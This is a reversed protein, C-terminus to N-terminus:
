LTSTVTIRSALGEGYDDSIEHVDVYFQQAPLIGYQAQTTNSIHYNTSGNVLATFLLQNNGTRVKVVFNLQDLSVVGSGKQTTNFVRAIGRTRYNWLLQIGDGFIPNYFQYWRLQGPAFPRLTNARAVIRTEEINAEVEGPAVAKIYRVQGIEAKNIPMFHITGPKLLVFREGPLHSDIANETGRLGRLLKSLTYRKTSVLTATQFGIIEGGILAWNTGNLVSLEDASTLEGNTIEVTITNILDWYYEDGPGLRDVTEQKVFRVADACSSGDTGAIMDVTINGVFNFEGIYIWEDSLGPDAQNIYTTYTGGNYTVTYGVKESRDLDVTYRVYIQYDGSTTISRQWRFTAGPTRTVHSDGGYPENGFPVIEWLGSFAGTPSSFGGGSAVDANDAIIETQTVSIVTEGLVASQVPTDVEVLADPDEGYYITAGRWIESNDGNAVAYYFGPRTIDDNTFPAIDIVELQIVSPVGISNPTTPKTGASVSFVSTDEITGVVETIFGAGRTVESVIIKFSKGYSTFEVLDGEEIEAYEPPIHIKCRYKNQWAMWLIRAAIPAAEGVTLTVDFDFPQVQEAIFKHRRYRVSGVQNLNDKDRFRVVVESPPKRGDLSEIEAKRPSDSGSSRASLNTEAVTISPLSGREYFVIKGNSEQAVLNYAILLPDLVGAGSAPGPITYGNLMLSGSIRTVDFDNASYGYLLMIDSITSAVTKTAHAEVMISFQPMRNGYHDLSLDKLLAYAMGRFAPTSGVGESAEIEPDIAQTLSGPYQTISAFRKKEFKPIDQSITVSAGAAETVANPNYLRVTYTNDGNNKVKIVKHTGNNGSNAFGSFTAQVGPRLTGLNISSINATIDMYIFYSRIIDIGTVDGFSIRVRKVSIGTSVQNFTSEASYILFSDAWIKTIRSIPGYAGGVAVSAYYRYSLIAEEGGKGGASGSRRPIFNPEAMWLPTGPIRCQPGFCRHIPSGETAQGLEMEKLRGYIVTKGATISPYLYQSDIYAGVGGLAGGVIAGPIGGGVAASGVTTLLITAM